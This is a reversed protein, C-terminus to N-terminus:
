IRGAVLANWSTRVHDALGRVLPFRRQYGLLDALADGCIRTPLGAIDAGGHAAAVEIRAGPVLGRVITAVDRVRATDGGTNFFYDPGFADAPLEALRALQEAVDAVYVLSVMADANWVRTAIGAVADDVMGGIWGATGRCAGPGFVLSPRIGAVLLGYTHRYVRALKEVYLHSAAALVRGPSLLAAAGERLPLESEPYMGDSGYVAVSSTTLVRPVELLWAMELVNATAAPDLTTDGGLSDVLHIIVDVGKATSGLDGLADGQIIEIHSSADGLASEDPDPHLLRVEHDRVLLARATLNGIIGTDVVLVRM